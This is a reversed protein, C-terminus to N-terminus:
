RVHEHGETTQRPALAARLAADLEGATAADDSVLWRRVRRLLGHKVRASPDARFVSRERAQAIESKRNM